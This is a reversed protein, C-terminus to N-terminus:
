PDGAAKLLQNIEEALEDSTKEPPQVIVRETFLGHHKALLEAAKIQASDSPRGADMLYSLKELVKERTAVRDSVVQKDAVEILSAVKNKVLENKMLRHAENHISNPSMRDANYADRYANTLNNGAAVQQAFKLQKPTLNM